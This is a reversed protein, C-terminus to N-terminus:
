RNEWSDKNDTLWELSIRAFILNRKAERSGYKEIQEYLAYIAGDSGATLDSYGAGGSELLKSFPWTKGEDYSIRLTLKDRSRM